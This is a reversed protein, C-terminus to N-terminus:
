SVISDFQEQWKPDDTAILMKRQNKERDYIFLAVDCNCLRHLEAGKKFM